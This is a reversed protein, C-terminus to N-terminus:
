FTTELLTLFASHRESGFRLLRPMLVAIDHPDGFIELKVKSSPVGGLVITLNRGLTRHTFADRCERLITWDEPARTEDLWQRYPGPLSALSKAKRKRFWGDVDIERDHLPAGCNARYAIAACLDLATTVCRLVLNQAAFEITQGKVRLPNNDGLPKMYDHLRIGADASDLHWRSWDIMTNIPASQPAGIQTTIRQQLTAM